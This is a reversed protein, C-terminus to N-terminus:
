EEDERRFYACLGSATVRRDALPCFGSPAMRDGKWEGCLCCCPEAADLLGEPRPRYTQRANDAPTPM